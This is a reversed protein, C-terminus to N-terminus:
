NWRRYNICEEFRHLRSFPSLNNTESDITATQPKPWCKVLNSLNVAIEDDGEVVLDDLRYFRPYLLKIMLNLPLTLIQEIFYSIINPHFQTKIKRM